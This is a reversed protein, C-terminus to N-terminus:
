RERAQLKTTRKDLLRKLDAERGVAQERMDGLQAITENHCKKAEETIALQAKIEEGYNCSPPETQTSAQVTQLHPAKDTETSKENTTVVPQQVSETMTTADIIAMVHHATDDM